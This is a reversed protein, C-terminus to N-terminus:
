VKFEEKNIWNDIDNAIEIMKNLLNNYTEDTILNKIDKLNGSIFPIWSVDDYEEENSNSINKQLLIYLGFTGEENDKAFRTTVMVDELNMELAYRYFNETEWIKNELMFQLLNDKNNVEDMIAIDAITKM